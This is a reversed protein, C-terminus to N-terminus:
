DRAGNTVWIQVAPSANPPRAGSELVGGALATRDRALIAM